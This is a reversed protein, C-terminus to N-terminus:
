MINYTLLYYEEYGYSHSSWIRCVRMTKIDTHKRHKHQGTYAGAKRCASEGDLTDQWSDTVNM